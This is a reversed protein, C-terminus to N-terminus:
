FSSTLVSDFSDLSSFGKWSCSRGKLQSPNLNGSVSITIASLSISNLADISISLGADLNISIDSSLNLSVGGKIESGYGTENRFYIGTNDIVTAGVEDGTELYARVKLHGEEASLLIVDLTKDYIEILGDDITVKQTASESILTSGTITVADINIATLTGTTIEDASISQGTIATRWRWTGDTNKSNSILLGNATLLMAETSETEIPQNHLEIGVGEVYTIGGNKSGTVTEVATQLTGSLKSAILMGHEDIVGNVKKNTANSTEIINTFTNTLDEIPQGLVVKSNIGTIIDKEVEIIRTYHDINLADDIVRVTDGLEFYGLEELESGQVVEVDYSITDEAFNVIRRINKTNKGFRFDVGRNQGLQQKLSIDRQFYELEGGWIVAIQYLIGKINLPQEETGQLDISATTTVDTGLFTFDTGTLAENMVYIAARDDYTFSTKTDKILDYSIHEAIVEVTLMNYENHLEEFNVVRFYDNDYVILNNNDYLYETKLPEILAVFNLTYEGNVVEHVNASELNNLYALTIDNSDIITLM